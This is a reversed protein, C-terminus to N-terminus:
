SPCVYECQAANTEFHPLVNFYISIKTTLHPLFSNNLLSKLSPKKFRENRAEDYHFYKKECKNMNATPKINPIM